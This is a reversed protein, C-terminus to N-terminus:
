NHTLFVQVGSNKNMKKLDWPLVVTKKTFCMRKALM